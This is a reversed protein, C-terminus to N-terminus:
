TFRMYKSNSSNWIELAMLKDNFHKLKLNKSNKLLLWRTGKLVEQQNEDEAERQLSRRLDALKDNFMKIIHFHDFVIIADPLNEQVASIYAPSMDM